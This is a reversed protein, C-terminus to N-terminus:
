FSVTLNGISINLVTHSCFHHLPPGECWLSPFHKLLPPFYTDVALGWRVLITFCSEFSQVHITKLCVLGHSIKSSCRNKASICGSCKWYMPSTICQLCDPISSNLVFWFDCEHVNTWQVQTNRYMIIIEKTKSLKALWKKLVQQIKAISVFCYLTTNCTRWIKFWM